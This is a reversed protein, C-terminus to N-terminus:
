NCVAPGNNYIQLTSYTTQALLGAFCSPLSTNNTIQLTAGVRTLVPLSLTSLVPNFDVYLSSAITTLSPASVTQLVGNRFVELSGGFVHGVLTLAGLSSPGLTTLATNDGFRAARGVKVLDSVGRPGLTTLATVEVFLDQKIERIESLGQPGLENLKPLYRLTFYEVNPQVHAYNFRTLERNNFIITGPLTAQPADISVLNINETVRLDGGLQASGITQLSAMSLATLNPNSSIEISRGTSVLADLRNTGLSSLGTGAIRVDLRSTKVTGFGVPGIDTLLPVNRLEVFEVNPTTGGIKFSTLKPNDSAAFGTLQTANSANVGVLNPNLQVYLAGPLVLGVSQLVPMDINTINPNQNLILNRGVSRLNSLGSSGFSALSTKDVIFDITTDQVNSLGNAGIDALLPVRQITVSRPAPVLQGWRATALQTMDSLTVGYLTANSADVTTMQPMRYLTLGGGGYPVSGVTQLAALSGLTSLNPNDGFELGRGVTTLSALGSPGVSTLATNLIRVDVTAQVMGSFGSPGINTLLPSNTIEAAYVAPTLHDYHLRTLKANNTASLSMLAANPADVTTLQPNQYVALGGSLPPPSGAILLSPLQISTVSPNSGLELNRGVSKLAAFSLSTSATGIIQCDIRVTELTSVASSDIAVLPQTKVAFYDLTAPLQPLHLTALGANNEIFLSAILTANHLDLVTLPNRLITIGGTTRTLSALSNPGLTTLAPNDFISISSAATLASLGNTGLNALKANQEIRLVSTLSTLAGLGISGLSVLKTNSRIDISNATALHGVDIATLATNGFIFVDRATALGSLDATALTPSTQVDVITGVADLNKIEITQTQSTPAVKLAGTVRRLSPLSLAAVSADGNITLTGQIENVCFLQDVSARTTITYNGVWPVLTGGAFLCPDTPYSECTAGSYPAPCECSFGNVGDICTGGHECPSDACEDVDIECHAGAFGADCACSYSDVGNTCAGHGNCAEATCNDILTECHAGEYGAPCECTFGNVQNHCIGGNLCVGPLCNDVIEECKAGTYGPVCSCTYSDVGDTCAGGNACPNDACNDIHTECNVGTFDPACACSYSNIGNTCIGGNLCPDSACNDVLTECNSGTYGAACACTYSAGVDTCTGGNECPNASCASVRIECDHGTYGADCECTYGTNENTCTGHECPNSACHDDPTTYCVTLAPRQAAVTGESSVFVTKKQSATEFLFGHNPHTGNVWSQVSSTVDVSKFTNASSPNIIAAAEYAFQQDFSAFSVSTESWGTTARHLQIPANGPDGSVFLTLTARDIVANSPITDLGFWLLGEDKGGVRVTPHAGFNNGAPPNSLMADRTTGASGRQVTICTTVLQETSHTTPGRDACACLLAAVTLTAGITRVVVM